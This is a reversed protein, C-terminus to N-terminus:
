FSYLNRKVCFRCCHIYDTRAKGYGSVNEFVRIRNEMIYWKNTRNRIILAHPAPWTLQYNPVTLISRQLRWSQRSFILWGTWLEYAVIYQRDFQGIDELDETRRAVQLLCLHYARCYLHCVILFRRTALRTSTIVSFSMVWCCFTM